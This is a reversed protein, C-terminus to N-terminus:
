RSSIYKKFLPRTRAFEEAAIEYDVWNSTFLIKMGPMYFFDTPGVTEYSVQRERFFDDIQRVCKQLVYALYTSCVFDTERGDSDIYGKKDPMGGFLKKEGKQHKRRVLASGATLNKTVKYIIDGAAYDKELMEQVANYERASVKLALTTQMSTYPNCRKMYANTKIDTCSELKLDQKTYLTLGYYSDDLRGSIASHSASEPNSDIATIVQKLFNVSSLKNDYFPLYLRIFIFEDGPNYEDAIDTDYIKFSQDCANIELGDAMIQSRSEAFKTSRCSVFFMCLAAALPLVARCGSNKNFPMKKEM